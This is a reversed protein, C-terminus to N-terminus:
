KQTKKREAKDPAKLVQSFLPYGVFDLSFCLFISKFFPVGRFIFVCSCIYVLFLAGWSKFSHSSHESPSSTGKCSPAGRFMFICSCICVLFLAGWSKYSHSSHAQLCDQLSKITREKDMKLSTIISITIISIHQSLPTPPSLAWHNRKSRAASYM